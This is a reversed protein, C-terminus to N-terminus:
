SETQATKKWESRIYSIVIVCQQRSERVATLVNLFRNGYFIPGVSLYRRQYPLHIYKCFVGSMQKNFVKPCHPVTHSTEHYIINFTTKLQKLSM